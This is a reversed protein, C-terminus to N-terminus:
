DSVVEVQDLEMEVPTERGFMSVVVVVKNKEADIEEVVGTFSELPGDSIRVRDGVNYSVVIEHKEMGLALVEEETLPIPKNSAEGVFGTVGRVNRVLHWTDDTLVMKILVYGPFVKREVEKSVGEENIETVTELPIQMEPVMDELHRNTVLKEITTKVANEYGSYTHVVYWKANEAM